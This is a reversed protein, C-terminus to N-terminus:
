NGKTIALVAEGIPPAIALCQSDSLGAGTLQLLVGNDTDGSGTGFTVAIGSDGCDVGWLITAPVVTVGSGGGSRDVIVLIGNRYTVQDHLRRQFEATAKAGDQLLAKDSAVLSPDVQLKPEAAAASLLGAFAFLASALLGVRM